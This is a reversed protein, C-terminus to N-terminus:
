NFNKLDINSDLQTVDTEHKIVDGVVIRFAIIRNYETEFIPNKQL